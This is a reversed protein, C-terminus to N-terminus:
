TTGNMEWTINQKLTVNKIKQHDSINRIDHYRNRKKGMNEQIYEHKLNEGEMKCDWSSQIQFINQM